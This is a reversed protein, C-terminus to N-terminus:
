RAAAVLFAGVALALLAISFEYMNGWPARGAALGRASSPAWCCRFALWTLSSRSAAPRGARLAAAPRPEAAGAAAAPPQTPRRGPRAPAADARGAPAARGRRRGRGFALEAAYGVM